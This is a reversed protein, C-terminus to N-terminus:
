CYSPWLFVLHYEPPSSRVPAKCTESNCKADSCAGNTMEQQLLIWIPKVNQHWNVCTSRSYQNNNNTTTGINGM